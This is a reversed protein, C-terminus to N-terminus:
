QFRGYIPTGCQSCGGDVISGPIVTGQYAQRDILPAACQSCPTDQFSQLRTNGAYVHKLHKGAIECARLIAATPTAQINSRYAPHYASIHLPIEPGIGALHAAFDRIDGDSDNLGPIVLNTVEVHVGSRYARGITHLVPEVSGGCHKRYFEERISKLDINMATVIELLSELPEPSIYGNSVLVLDTDPCERAMDLIFEYWTIPESYTFAVQKRIGPNRSFFARVTQATVEMTGASEQSVNHNQCFFCSFNCSNPGLSLIQSGPHFHYLPKKEIPDIATAISHGYNVAVLEGEINERSRCLGRKGVGILCHHPCLGCVVNKGDAKHWYEAKRIM